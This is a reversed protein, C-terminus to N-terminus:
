TSSTETMKWGKRSFSAVHMVPSYKLTLKRKRGHRSYQPRTTQLPEESRYTTPRSRRSRAVRHRSGRAPKRYRSWNYHKTNARRLPNRKAASHVTDLPHRNCALSETELCYSLSEEMTTAGPSSVPSVVRPEANTRSRSHWWRFCQASCIAPREPCADCAMVAMAEYGPKVRLHCSACPAHYSLEGSNVLCDTHLTELAVLRHRRHITEEPTENTLQLEAFPPRDSLHDCSSSSVVAANSCTDTLTEIAEEQNHENKIDSGTDSSASSNAQTELMSVAMDDCPKHERSNNTPDSHPFTETDPEPKFTRLIAATLQRRRAFIVDVIHQQLECTMKFASQLDLVRMENSIATANQIATAFLPVLGRPNM